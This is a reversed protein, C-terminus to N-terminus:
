AWKTVATRAADAAVRVARPDADDFQGPYTLRLVDVAPAVPSNAIDTFTM